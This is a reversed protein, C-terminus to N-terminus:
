VWYLRRIKFLQAPIVKEQKKPEKKQSPQSPKPAAVREIIAVVRQMVGDVIASSLVSFFRPEISPSFLAMLEKNLKPKTEYITQFAKWMDDDKKSVIKEYQEALQKYRDKRKERDTHEPRRLGLVACMADSLLLPNVKQQEPWVTFLNQYAIDRNKDAPEKKKKPVIPDYFLPLHTQSALPLLESVDSVRHTRKKFFTILKASLAGSPLKKKIGFGKFLEKVYPKIERKKEDFLENLPLKGEEASICFKLQGEVGDYEEQLDFLQWRDLQPLVHTIFSKFSFQNQKEEKQEKSAAKQAREEQKDPQMSRALQAIAVRIGGLAVMEAQERAIMASSFRIGVAVSKLLQQTILTVMGMIVLSFLLVSGSRTSGSVLRSSRRQDISGSVLEPHRAFAITVGPEIRPRNRRVM